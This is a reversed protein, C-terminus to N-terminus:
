AAIPASVVKHQVLVSTDQTDEATKSNAASPVKKKPLIIWAENVTVQIRAPEPIEINREIQTVIYEDFLEHLNSIAEGETLGDTKCGRLEIYEAIWYKSGDSDSLPEVRLTYPLHKYYELTKMM